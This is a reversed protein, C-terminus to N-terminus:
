ISTGICSLHSLMAGNTKQSSSFVRRIFFVIKFFRQCLLLFFTKWQPYSGSTQYTRLLPKPALFFLVAQNMLWKADMTTHHRFVSIGFATQAHIHLHTHTHTHLLALSLSLAWSVVAEVFPSTLPHELMLGGAANLTVAEEIQACRM